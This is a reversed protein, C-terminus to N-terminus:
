DAANYEDGHTIFMLYTVSEDIDDWPFVGWFLDVPNTGVKFNYKM